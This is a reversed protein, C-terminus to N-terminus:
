SVAAICEDINAIMEGALNLERGLISVLDELAAILADIDGAERAAQIAEHAEIKEIQLSTMDIRYGLHIKKYSLITKMTEYDKNKRAERYLEKAESYKGRLEEDSEKLAERYRGIEERLEKITEREEAKEAKLVERDVEVEEEAFAFSTLGLALVAVLLISIVKKM